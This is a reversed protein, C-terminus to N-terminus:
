NKSKVLALNLQQKQLSHTGRPQKNQALLINEKKKTSVKLRNKELFEHKRFTICKKISKTKLSPAKCILRCITVRGTDSVKNHGGFVVYFNFM